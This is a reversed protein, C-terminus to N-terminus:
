TLHPPGRLSSTLQKHSKLFSYYNVKTTSTETTTKLEYNFFEFISNHNIKFKYFECDLDIEHFHSQNEILCIEHEHHKLLHTFKVAIPLM